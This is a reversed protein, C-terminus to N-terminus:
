IVESVFCVQRRMKLCSSYVRAGQQLGEPTFTSMLCSSWYLCTHENLATKVLEKIYLGEELGFWSLEQVRINEFGDSLCSM